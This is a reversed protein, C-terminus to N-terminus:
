TSGSRGRELALKLDDRYSEADEEECELTLVLKQAPQIGLTTLLGITRSM